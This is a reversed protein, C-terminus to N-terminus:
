NVGMHVRFLILRYGKASVTKYLNVTVAQPPYIDVEFGARELTFKAEDIFPQNPSKLGLQDVIAAKGLITTAGPRTEKLTTADTTIRHTSINPVPALALYFILVLFLGIAAFGLLEVPKVKRGRSIKGKRVRRAKVM